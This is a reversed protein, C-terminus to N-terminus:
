GYLITESFFESAKMENNLFYAHTRKGYKYSLEIRLADEQLPKSWLPVVKSNMWKYVKDVM